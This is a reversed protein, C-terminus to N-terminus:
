DRLALSAAFGGDVPLAAGNLYSAASSNLFLLPWAQEEPTSRRGIPQATADILATPTTKEIEELMPTQVAGPSTCNIRVGQKILQMANAMTWVIIAEKSLAYAYAPHPSAPAPRQEFWRVAEDFSTAAALTRLEALHSRWGAGGNSSVNAIAAGRPMQALLLGTLYHLGIFNVKMVELAPRGPAIGACNFLADIQGTIQRAAADISSQQRLDISTFQHLPLDCPQYDLGHVEAGSELLLHATARGIGSACGVVVTKKNAYDLM